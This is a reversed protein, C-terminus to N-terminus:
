PMTELGHGEESRLDGRRRIMKTINVSNGFTSQASPLPIGQLNGFGARPPPTQLLTRNEGPLRMLTSLERLAPFARCILARFRELDGTSPPAAFRRPIHTGTISAMGRMGESAVQFRPCFFCERPLIFQVSQWASEELLSGQLGKTCDTRCRGSRNYPQPRSFGAHPTQSEKIPFTGLKRRCSPRRRLVPPLQGCPPRPATDRVSVPLWRRRQPLSLFSVRPTRFVDSNKSIQPDVEEPLM